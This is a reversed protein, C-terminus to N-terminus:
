WYYISIRRELEQLTQLLPTIGGRTIFAVSIAFSDCKLLEDEIASFVKQSNKNDNYIFQPRYALNSNFAGNIFATHFGSQLETIKEETM